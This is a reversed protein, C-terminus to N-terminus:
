EDNNENKNGLLYSLEQEVKAISPLASKLEKPIAKSLQYDSVGIPQKYGCPCDGVWGDAFFCRVM